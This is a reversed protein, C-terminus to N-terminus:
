FKYLLGFQPQAFPNNFLNFNFEFRNSSDGDEPNANNYELIDALVFTAAFNKTFFYNIGLTLNAKIDNNTNDYRSGDVNLGRIRSHGYGIGVDGYAKFRKQSLELFYYRAFGGIGFFNEKDEGDKSGGFDIDAGVAIKDSLLYGFKPNIGYSTNDGETTVSVGGEVFMDGQEFSVGKASRMEQRVQSESLEKDPLNQAQAFGFAFLALATGIIRKKM